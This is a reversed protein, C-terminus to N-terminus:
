GGTVGRNRNRLQLQTSPRPVCGSTITSQAQPALGRKKSHVCELSHGNWILTSCPDPSPLTPQKTSPRCRPDPLRLAAATCPGTQWSVYRSLVEGAWLCISCPDPAALVAPNFQLQRATGMPLGELGTSGASSRGHMHDSRQSAGPPEQQDGPLCAAGAQM